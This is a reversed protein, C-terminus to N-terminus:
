APCEDDLSAQIRSNVTGTLSVVTKRSLQAVSGIDKPPVGAARAERFVENRRCEARVVAAQAEAIRERWTPSM